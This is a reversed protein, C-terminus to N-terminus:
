KVVELDEVNWCQWGGLLHDLVVGGPVDRMIYIVKATRKKGKLRVIDGAHIQPKPTNSM